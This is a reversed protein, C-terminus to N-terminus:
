FTSAFFRTVNPFDESLIWNEDTAPKRLPEHLSRRRDYCGRPIFRHLMNGTTSAADISAADTASHECNMAPDARRLTREPERENLEKHHNRNNSYEDGQQQRRNLRGTFGRTLGLAAVVQLLNRDAEMIEFRRLAVEGTVAPLSFRAADIESRLFEGPCIAHDECSVPQQLRDGVHFILQDGIDEDGGRLACCCM